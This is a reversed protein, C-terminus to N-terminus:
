VLFTKCKAENEIHANAYSPFPRNSSSKASGFGISKKPQINKNEWKLGRSKVGSFQKKNEFITWTYGSAYTNM